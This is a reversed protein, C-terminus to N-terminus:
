CPHHVRVPQGAMHLHKQLSEMDQLVRPNLVHRQNRLTGTHITLIQRNKEWRPVQPVTKLDSEFSQGCPLDLVAGTIALLRPM